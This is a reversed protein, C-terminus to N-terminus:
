STPWLRAYGGVARFAAVHLFSMSKPVVAAARRGQVLRCYAARGKPNEYRPEAPGFDEASRFRLATRTTSRFADYWTEDGKFEPTVLLDIQHGARNRAWRLGSLLETFGGQERLSVYVDDFDKRYRDDLAMMWLLTEALAAYSATQVEANEWRAFASFMAQRALWIRFLPDSPEQVERLHMKTLDAGDADFGPPPTPRPGPVHPEQLTPKMKARGEGDERVSVEYVVRLDGAASTVRDGPRLHLLEPREGLDVEFIEDVLM